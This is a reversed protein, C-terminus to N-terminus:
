CNAPDSYLDMVQVYKWLIPVNSFSTFGDIDPFICCVSQFWLNVAYYYISCQFRRLM